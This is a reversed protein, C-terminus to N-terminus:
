SPMQWSLSLNVTGKKIPAFSYRKITSDKVTFYNRKPYAYRKLNDKDVLMGIGYNFYINAWYAASSRSPLLITKKTSDLQLEVALPKKSREVYYSKAAGIELLSSDTSHSKSVSIARIRM